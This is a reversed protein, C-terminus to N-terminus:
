GFSFNSVVGPKDEQGRLDVERIEPHNIALVVAAMAIESQRYGLVDYEQLTRELYFTAAIQMLPTSKTISLFRQLFQYGTPVTLQFRLGDLMDVEMDLIQQKTYARGTVTVCDKLQFPYVEEYKAAIWLATIGVLQIEKRAVEAVNLYRDLLNVGLHLVEPVCRFKAHAEVMWDVLIARMSPQMDPQCEMYPRPSLRTQAFIFRTKSINLEDLEGNGRTKGKEQPVYRVIM